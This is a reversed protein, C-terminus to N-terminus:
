AGLSYLLSLILIFGGTTNGPSSKEILKEM